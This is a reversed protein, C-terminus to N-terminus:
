PKTGEDRIQQLILLLRELNEPTEEKKRKRYDRHSNKRANTTAPDLRRALARLLVRERHAPNTLYKFRAFEASRKRIIALQEPTRAERYQKGYKSLRERNAERYQKGYEHARERNAARYRKGHEHARERQEPTMRARNQRQYERMKEPDAARRRRTQERGQKRMKTLNAARRRRAQERVRAMEEPTMDDRRKTM